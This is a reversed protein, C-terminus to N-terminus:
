YQKKRLEILHICEEFETKIDEESRSSHEIQSTILTIMSIIKDELSRAVVDDSATVFRINEKLDSVNELFVIGGSTQCAIELQALRSSIERLGSKRAEVKEMSEKVNSKALTGMFFQLLLLFLLVLHGVLCFRFSWELIISLVILIVALPVYTWVAYWKLGFGSGSEGVKDVTRFIDASRLFMVGYVLCAAVLNLYFLKEEQLDRLFLFFSLIIIGLGATLFLCAVIRQSSKM